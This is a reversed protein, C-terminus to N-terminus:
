FLATVIEDIGSAYAKILDQKKAIATQEDHSNTGFFPETIICPAATYKLLHGGRETVKVKKTFRNRLGLAELVHRQMILAMKYGKKSSHYYLMETGNARSNGSANFHLSVIFKPQLANIKAPLRTYGNSTDDRFVIKVNAKKVKQKVAEAIESNFDFEFVNNLLMRAGKQSQRHGVVLACLPKATTNPDTLPKPGIVIDRSKTLQEILVDWSTNGSKLMQVLIESIWSPSIEILECEFLTNNQFFGSVIAIHGENERAGVFPFDSPDNPSQLKVSTLKIIGHNTEFDSTNKFVGIFYSKM